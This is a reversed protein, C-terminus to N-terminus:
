AVAKVLSAFIFSSTIVEYHLLDRASATTTLVPAAGGAFKWNAGYALTRSGTGDQLIEIIGCQGVKANSPSALTRNGHLTVTWNTSTNLNVSISAADTLLGFAAAAWVQDTTLVKNSANSLYEATTAEDLIGASGIGLNTRAASATSAGTGGNAVSLDTGSWNSDNVTVAGGAAAFPGVTVGAVRAYVGAATVWVDGNVPSTPAVGVGFNIGASGTASALLNLKGLMTGGTDIDLKNNLAAATLRLEVREGTLYARATTGEQGRTITLTDSSRATCKVIELQNAPNILTAMFWDNGTPAPFLAGQGGSVTLSLAGSSIGAALTASANNTFLAAM